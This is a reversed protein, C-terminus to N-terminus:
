ITIDLRGTITPAYQEVLRQCLDIHEMDLWKLTDRRRPDTFFVGSAMEGESRLFPLLAPKRVLMAYDPLMVGGVTLHNDEDATLRVTYTCRLAVAKWAHGDERTKFPKPLTIVAPIALINDGPCYEVGGSM